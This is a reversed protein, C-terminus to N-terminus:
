YLILVMNIGNIGYYYLIVVMVIGYYYWLLVMIIGYYYWILVMIICNTICNMIGDYYYLILVM